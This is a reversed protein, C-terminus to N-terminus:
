RFVVGTELAAGLYTRPTSLFDPSGKVQLAYNAIALGAGARARLFLSSGLPIRYGLAANVTLNMLDTATTRTGSNPIATPPVTATLAAFDLGLEVLPELVGPGAALWTGAGLRLPLRRLAASAPTASAAPSAGNHEPMLGVSATLALPLRLRGVEVEGGLHGDFNGAGGSQVGAGVYLLWLRGRPSAPTGAPASATGAPSSGLAGLSLSSLDAQSDYDRFDLFREVIAALAEALAVCDDADGHVATPLSRRLQVEGRTDILSFRVLTADPAIELESRLVDRGPPWFLPQAPVTADPLRTRLAEAVQTANPCGSPPAAPVAVLRPGVVALGILAPLIGLSTV